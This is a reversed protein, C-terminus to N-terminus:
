YHREVVYKLTVLTGALFISLGAIIMPVVSIVCGAILITIGASVTFVAIGKTLTVNM